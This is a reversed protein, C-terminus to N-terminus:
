AQLSQRAIRLTYDAAEQAADWDKKFSNYAISGLGIHLQYCLLREKLNSPATTAAEYHAMLKQIVQAEAFQPFYPAYFIFWAVDYLSDGYISCQWDIVASIKADAVLLNYHLLDAHILERAEPCKEVLAQFQAYLQDFAATGLESNALDAYWGSQINEEPDSNVGLLFEKWSKQNGVGNKDWGGYGSTSSLDATRLADFMGLLAPLANKLEAATLTDIFKGAAFESIAFYADFQKGEDMIQPVPMADSSFASAAADKEFTESSYCWRLVHKKHQYVFSYAQSWEGGSLLTLESVDGLKDRLFQLTDQESINPKQAM